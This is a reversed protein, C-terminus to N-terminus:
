FNDVLPAIYKGSKDFLPIPTPRGHVIAVAYRFRVTCIQRRIPKKYSKGMITQNGTAAPFSGTPDDPTSYRLFESNFPEGAIQCITKILETAHDKTDTQIKLSMGKEPAYYVAMNRGRYWKSEADSNFSTKIRQAITKLKGETLTQTTEEM